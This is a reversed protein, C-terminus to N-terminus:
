WNKNAVRIEENPIYNEGSHCARRLGDDQQVFHGNCKKTDYHECTECRKKFVPERLPM